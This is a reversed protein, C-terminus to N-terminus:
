DQQYPEPNLTDLFEALNAALIEQPEKGVQELAVEGTANIVSLIFDEEDTVAFFLTEAQRLRRKMMVHAILNEQLRIFDDQNWPLLLQLDGRSTSANLNDGFYRCYFCELQRDVQLGLGDMLGSLDNNQNQMVPQWNVKGDDNPAGSEAPSPWQEDKEILLRHKEQEQFQLWRNIFNDFSNSIDTTM